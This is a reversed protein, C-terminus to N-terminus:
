NYLIDGTEDFRYSDLNDLVVESWFKPDSYMERLEEEEAGSVQAEDILIPAELMVVILEKNYVEQKIAEDLEEYKYSKEM